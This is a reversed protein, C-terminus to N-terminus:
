PAGGLWLGDRGGGRVGYLVRGGSPRLYFTVDRDIAVRSWTATPVLVLEGRQLADDWGRLLALSVGDEGFDFWVGGVDGREAFVEGGTALDLVSLQGANAAPRFAGLGAVFHEQPDWGIWQASAGTALVLPAGAAVAAVMLSGAIGPQANASGPAQPAQYDRAYTFHLGLPGFDFGAAPSVGGLAEV